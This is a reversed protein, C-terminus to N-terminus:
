SKKSFLLSSANLICIISAGVDSFIAMWMNTYGFLGLLIVLVKIGISFILNIKIVRMIQKSKQYAYVIGDLKDQLLVIDSAEISMNSGSAGMAIGIDSRKLVPADNFGDGVFAVKEKEMLKKIVQLKDNPLQQAYVDTINLKNAVQEVSKLQDGSVISFDHIGEISLQKLVSSAEEKLTDQLLICGVYTYNKAVYIATQHFVKVEIGNDNLFLASGVHILHGGIIASIGKGAVEKVNEAPLLLSADIAKTISLALPHTSYQEVSAALQLTEDNTYSVVEFKGTTLTGTKDFVIRKVKSFVDVVGSGKVFVGKKGMAGLGSYFSLPVSIVLACPCSIVWLICAKEIAQTLSLQFLPALLIILFGIIVILPTYVSAFKSIFKECASKKSTDELLAMMKMFVTDKYLKTVRIRLVSELNIYGALVPVEDHVFLPLSEGTLSATDVTGGNGIVVGDVPINEGPYVVVVDDINVKEVARDEIMGNEVHAIKVNLSFASEVHKKSNFIMTEQLAEGIQFLIMVMTAEVYEHLYFAALTALVMLVNEDFVDTLLGKLGSKLGKCFKLIASYLVDYGILLYAIMFGISIKLVFSMLFVFIGIGFLLRRVNVNKKISLEPKVSKIVQEVVEEIAQHNGIYEFRCLQKFVNIDVKQIGDIQNLKGEIKKACNTCSLGEIKLQHISM